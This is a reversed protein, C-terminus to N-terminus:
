KKSSKIVYIAVLCAVMVGSYAIIEELVLMKEM